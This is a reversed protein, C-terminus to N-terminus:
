QETTFKASGTSRIHLVFIVSKAKWEKARKSVTGASVRSTNYSRNVTM